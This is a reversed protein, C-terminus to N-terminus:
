QHHSSIYPLCSLGYCHVVRHLVSADSYYLTLVSANPEDARRWYVLFLLHVLQYLLVTGSQMRPSSLSLLLFPSDPYPIFIV